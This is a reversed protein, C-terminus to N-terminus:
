ATKTYREILWDLAYQNKAIAAPWAAPDQRILEDPDKGSPITIISLSVKVRSAIPIARETAALGAKDADFSLRIDGTFRSLAKLHPETLATGATAVVQRVGAQHSAIVDLNGEAIVVFKSKRISEKALHLGYVHRSKDYLVTQPTNIYKPAEPDDDVCARRLAL